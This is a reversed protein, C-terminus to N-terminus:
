QCDATNLHNVLAGNLTHYNLRADTSLVTSIESILARLLSSGSANFDRQRGRFGLFLGLGGVFWLSPGRMKFNRAYLSRQPKMLAHAM